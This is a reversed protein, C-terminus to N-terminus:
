VQYDQQTLCPSRVKATGSGINFLERKEGYGRGSTWHCCCNPAKGPQKQKRAEKVCAFNNNAELSLLFHTERQELDGFMRHVNRPSHRPNSNIKGEYGLFSLPMLCKDRCSCIAFPATIFLTFNMKACLFVASRFPGALRSFPFTPM